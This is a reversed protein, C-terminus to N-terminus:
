GLAPAAARSRVRPVGRAPATRGGRCRLGRSRLGPLRARRRGHRRRAAPRGLPHPPDPRVDARRRAARAAYYDAVAAANWDALRVRRNKLALGYLVWFNFDNAWANWGPSLTNGNVTTLGICDAYPFEALLARMAPDAAQLDATAFADNQGLNVVVTAPDLVSDAYREAPSRRRSASRSDDTRSRSTSKMISYKDAWRWPIATWLRSNM